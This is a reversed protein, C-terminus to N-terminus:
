PLISELREIESECKKKEEAEFHRYLSRYAWERVKKAWSLGPLFLLFASLVSIFLAVIGIANVSGKIGTIATVAACGIMAGAIFLFLARYCWTSWFAARKEAKKEASKRLDHIQNKIKKRTEDVEKAHLRAQNVAGEKARRETNEARRASEQDSVAVAIANDAREREEKSYRDRLRDRIDTVMEATLATGDGDCLQTLEATAYADQRMNAAEDQTLTNEAVLRSAIDNFAIMVSGSPQVAARAYEVLKLRPIDSRVQMGYKLWLVTALDADSMLPAIYQSSVDYRLFNNGERVLRYNTTVFIAPCSEISQYPIGARMVMVSAIADVDNDLMASHKRYSPFKDELRKRLGVYDIYAKRNGLLQGDTDTFRNGRYVNVGIENLLGELKRIMAEIELRSYGESGLGELPLPNASPKQFNRLIESIEIYHQEFVYLSAGNNRLLALLADAAQKSEETKWNLACLLFTTDLFVSVNHLKDFGHRAAFTTESSTNVYITSAVMVGQAINTIQNFLDPDKEQADLIFRGIQYNIADTDKATASRLEDPDFFIDFGNAEFFTGLAEKVRLRSGVEKKCEAQLWTMLADLVRETDHKAQEMHSQFRSIQESPEKIYRFQREKKNFSPSEEVIRGEGRGLRELVKDLVAPPM